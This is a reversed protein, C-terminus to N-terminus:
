VLWSKLEKMIDNIEKEAKKDGFGIVSRGVTAATPYSVLKSTGSDFVPLEYSALAEKVEANLRSGKIACSIVFAAKPKGGALAQRTKILEVLDSAAWIDYPSPQVPILVLDAIKIAAVALLQVQPAGDIIVIDSGQALTRLDKEILAPRDLGVVPISDDDTNASRWDRASGQPDTDALIVRLGDAQLACAVNTSLTTKGAGGKQNLFAVIKATKM